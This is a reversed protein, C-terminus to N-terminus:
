KTYNKLAAKDKITIRKGNVEIVNETQLKKLARSLTENITGLHSALDYKSIELDIYERDKKAIETLLYKALRKAVDDLTVSEIHSNLFRLRKAFSALMRMCIDTNHETLELFPKMPVKIVTTDEEIAMSNAPYALETTKSLIYKEFMPVEGFTSGPYEIHLIHERGENSIKYLKVLGELIGYFGSYPETDFFIIEGKAYNKISSFDKIQKLHDESLNSFLFIKSIDYKTKM